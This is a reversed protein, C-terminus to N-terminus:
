PDNCKAPEFPVGDPWAAPLGKEVTLSNIYCVFPELGIEKRRQSLQEPAELPLFVIKSKEQINFQMGYVQSQNQLRRNRDVLLALLKGKAEGALVAVKMKNAAFVQFTPDMDAHQALLWANTAGKEGVQSQMPWDCKELVPRFWLRNDADIKLVRDTAEKDYVGVKLASRASQDVAVREELQPRLNDPNCSVDAQGVALAAVFITAISM